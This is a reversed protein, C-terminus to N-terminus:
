YLYLFLQLISMYNSTYTNKIKILQCTFLVIENNCDVPKYDDDEFYFTIHSLVSKNIKKFLKVKPEKYIKHGPPQDLAFSYLIPERVGNVTSGDVVNCKLHVKDIGTINIPEDSKYSGPLIQYFGEIDNLPGQHSQTFGLITYFFSKNTFILTQNIKLDTKYKREDISVNIKVNNPLINKLTKNLDVVNNINPEISYGMRKTPIYKLDLIDIIEDYILQMRYVLDELDNYNANKIEEITKHKQTDFDSLKYENDDMKKHGRKRVEAVHLELSKLELLKDLEDITKEAFETQYHGPIIISFSNKENTNNYVSNTCDFLSVAMLWKGEEVLNIPPNFSFTQMQKNMKFELTEQPKTKTQEILSDTHKKILLLLGNNM